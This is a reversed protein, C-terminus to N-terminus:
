REEVLALHTLILALIPLNKLLGGFPDAWLGPALLTLGVTYGAVMGLQAYGMLLPRWNRLLALGLGLDILGGLRASWLPAHIMAFRDPQLTLGLVASFLWLVALTLRILPKLLYLRAQWLDQTGAPRAMIFARVGRAMPSPAALLGAQLQTVATASIPGLKLADGVHGLAKALPLPVHLMPQRALGLWRRTLATLETLTLSEPGGIEFTGPQATL